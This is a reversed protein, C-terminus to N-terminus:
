FARRRATEIQCKGKDFNGNWRRVSISLDIRNLWYDFIAHDGFTVEDSTFTARMSQSGSQDSISVMGTDEDAALKFQLTDGNGQAVCSLYVPKASAADSTLVWALFSAVLIPRTCGM